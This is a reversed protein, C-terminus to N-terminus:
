RFDLSELSGPPFRPSARLNCVANLFPRALRTSENVSNSTAGSDMQHTV